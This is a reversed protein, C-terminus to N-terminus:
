DYRKKDKKTKKQRLYANKHRAMSRMDPRIAEWGSQPSLSSRAFDPSIQILTM